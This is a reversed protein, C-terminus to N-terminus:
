ITFRAKARAKDRARLGTGLGLDKAKLKNRAAIRIGLGERVRYSTEANLSTCPKYYNSPTRIRM